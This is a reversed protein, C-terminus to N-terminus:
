QIGRQNFIQFEAMLCDNKANHSQSSNATMSWVGPNERPRKCMPPRCICLSLANIPPSEYPPAYVKHPPGLKSLYVM